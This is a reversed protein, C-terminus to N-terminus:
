GLHTALAMAMWVAIVVNVSLFLATMGIQCKFTYAYQSTIRHQQGCPLKIQISNKPVPTQNLKALNQLNFAVCFLHLLLPHSSGHSCCCVIMRMYIPLYGM